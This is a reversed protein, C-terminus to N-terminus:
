DDHRPRSLKQPKKNKNQGHRKKSFKGSTEEGGDHNSRGGNNKGRQSM